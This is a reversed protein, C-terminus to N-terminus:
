RGGFVETGVPDSQEPKYLYNVHAYVDFNKPAANKRFEATVKAKDARGLSLRKHPAHRSLASAHRMTKGSFSLPKNVM